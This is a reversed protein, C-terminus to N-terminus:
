RPTKDRLARTAILLRRTNQVFSTDNILIQLRAGLLSTSKRLQRAKSDAVGGLQAAAPRRTPKSNAEDRTSPLGCAVSIKSVTRRKELSITKTRRLTRNRRHHRIICTGFSSQDARGAFTSSIELIIEAMTSIKADPRTKSVSKERPTAGCDVMDSSKNAAMKSVGVRPTGPQM